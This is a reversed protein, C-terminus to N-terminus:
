KLLKHWWKTSNAEAKVSAEYLEEKLRQIRREYNAVREDFGEKTVELHEKMKKLLEDKEVIQGSMQSPPGYRSYPDKLTLYVMKEQKLEEYQQKYLENETSIMQYDEYSMTITKKGM